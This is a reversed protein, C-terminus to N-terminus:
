SNKNMQSIILDHQLSISVTSEAIRQRPDSNNNTEKIASLFAKDISESLIVPGKINIYMQTDQELVSHTYNQPMSLIIDNISSFTMQNDLLLFINDPTIINLEMLKAQKLMSNVYKLDLSFILDIMLSSIYVKPIRKNIDLLLKNRFQVEKEYITKWDTNFFGLDSLPIKRRHQNHIWNTSGNSLPGLKFRKMYLQQWFINRTTSIKLAESANKNSLGLNLIENPNLYEMISYFVNQDM